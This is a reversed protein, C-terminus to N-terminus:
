AAPHGLRERADLGHQVERRVPPRISARRLVEELPQTLIVQALEAM